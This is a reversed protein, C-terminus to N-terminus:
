LRNRAVAQCLEDELFLVRNTAGGVRLFHSRNILTAENVKVPTGPSFLLSATEKMEEPSIRLKQFKGMQKPANPTAPRQSSSFFPELDEFRRSCNESGEDPILSDARRKQARLRIPTTYDFHLQRAIQVADRFKSSVHSLPKLEDHHVNCVIHVLIDLPLSEIDTLRASNEEKGHVPLFSEMPRFRRSEESCIDASKECSESNVAVRKRGMTLPTNVGMNRGVNKTLVRRGRLCAKKKAKCVKRYAKMKAQRAARQAEE